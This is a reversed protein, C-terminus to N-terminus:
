GVHGILEPGGFLACGEVQHKLRNRSGFRGVGPEADIQGQEAFGM